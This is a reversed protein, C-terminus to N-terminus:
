IYLFQKETIMATFPILVKMNIHSKEGSACVTESSMCQIHYHGQVPKLAAARRQATSKEMEQSAVAMAKLRQKQTPAMSSVNSLPIRPVSGFLLMSLTLGDPSMTGNVTHVAISLRSQKEMDPFDVKLKSYM